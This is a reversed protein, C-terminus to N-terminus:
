EQSNMLFSNLYLVGQPRISLVLVRNSGFVSEILRIYNEVKDVPLFVQITGAFGGGHVRCAGKQCDDIYKETLALALTLGQEQVNNVSYINQLWKFSSDGSASVLKLFTEFDGKELAAVQNLVRDNDQLFHLARLIARDGVKPRLTKINSLLEEWQIDRCTEAGLERAVAKMERPVAAYDDTLDAHTGGTDVVLISYNRSKFDFYIKKVRPKQPEKFDITVIGGVACTIQDMLGCPKGFFVNEAYQGILAITEPDIKGENYLHNFISGILVEISASSSLGSGPLVDSTICARFGGLHYGLEKFRAAIGRILASTTREEEPCVALNNLDVIFPQNYGESHIIVQNGDTKGVVAISDLNVAAALVRGHNHDTHNGGIETRGPSSFWHLDEAAGFASQYRELLAKYRRTQKELIESGNGYLRSVMENFTQEETVLPIKLNENMKVGNM